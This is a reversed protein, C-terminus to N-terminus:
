MDVETEKGEGLCMVWEWRGGGWGHRGLRWESLPVGGQGQGQIFHKVGGLEEGQM